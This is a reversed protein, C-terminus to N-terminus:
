EVRACIGNRRSKVRVVDTSAQYTGEVDTFVLIVTTQSLMPFIPVTIKGNMGTMTFTGGNMNIEGIIIMITEHRGIGNGNTMAQHSTSMTKPGSFTIM